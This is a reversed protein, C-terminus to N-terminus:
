NGNYERVFSNYGEVGLCVDLIAKTRDNMLQDGYFVADKLKAVEEESPMKSLDVGKYGISKLWADLGAFRPANLAATLGTMYEECPNVGDKSVFSRGSQRIHRRVAPLAAKQINSRFQAIQASPLSCKAPFAVAESLLTAYDDLTGGHIAISSPLLACGLRACMAYSAPYAVDAGTAKALRSSVKPWGVPHQWWWHPLFGREAMTADLEAFVAPFRSQMRSSFLGNTALHAYVSGTTANTPAFAEAIVARLEAESCESPNLPEAAASMSAAVMAAVAAAKVFATRM